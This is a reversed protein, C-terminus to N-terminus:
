ERAMAAGGPSQLERQEQALTCAGCFLVCCFDGIASGEINKKDRVKGRLITRIVLYGVYCLLSASFWLTVMSGLCCLWKNEGLEEANNGIAFCPCFFALLCTSCDSFCGCLPSSWDSM